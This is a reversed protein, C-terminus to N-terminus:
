LWHGWGRGRGQLGVGVKSVRHLFPPLRQGRTGQELWLAGGVGGM